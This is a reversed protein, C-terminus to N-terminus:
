TNPIHKSLKHLQIDFKKYKAIVADFLIEKAKEKDEKKSFISNSINFVNDIWYDNLVFLDTKHLIKKRIDGFENTRTLVFVKEKEVYDFETETLKFGHKTLILVLKYM